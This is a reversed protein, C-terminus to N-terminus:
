AEGVAADLATPGAPRRALVCIAVYGRASWRTELIEFGARVLKGRPDLARLGGYRDPRDAALWDLARAIWRAAGRAPIAPTVVVLRGGPRLVRLLEGLVARQDAGSLVHLLYCAGAADFSGSEFPLARADAVTTAWGSPLPPVRALMAASRDVGLARHPRPKRHALERLLGGTGTGLDLLSEEHNAALLSAATRLSARELWLQRDYRASLRDWFQQPVGDEGRGAAEGNTWRPRMCVYEPLRPPM